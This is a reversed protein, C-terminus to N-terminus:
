RRGILAGVILGGLLAAGTSKWPHAVVTEEYRHAADHAKGNIDDITKRVSAGMSEAMAKLDDRDFHHTAASKIQRAMEKEKGELKASIEKMEAELKRLQQQATAM